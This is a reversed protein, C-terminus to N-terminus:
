NEGRLIISIVMNVDDIDVVGDGNLDASMDQTGSLILNIVLNVDDVDVVGDRSVDGEKFAATDLTVTKRNSWGSINYLNPNVPVAKVAYIYKGGPNLGTVTYNTGTIDDINAVVTGTNTSVSLLYTVNATSGLAWSAKFSSNTINSPDNLVPNPLSVKSSKGTLNITVNNADTSSLTITAEVTETSQPTYSVTVTYGNNTLGGTSAAQEISITTPDVSFVGNEDNLTLTIDEVLNMGTVTFTATATVDGKSTLSLSKNSVRIRPGVTSPQIGIVMQQESSFTYGGYSFANMSYWNNGDGSWGFNVHYKNTTSNYGDVNFAHGGGFYGSNVGMYVVPRGEAMETQLMAAWDTESFNDKYVLQTTEEDYDFLKFMDAVLHGETSYIGSGDTGYMMHEGQGVYRMLTAVANGQATTYSGSYSDLMNDWDFTVGPLAPYTYNVADTGWYSSPISLTSTYAPVADIQYNPWKWYYLVMSASTAPCGTLCQYNSGSYTFNCQNWYPAEQDWLATLLPGYTAGARVKPAKYTTPKQVKVNPNSILWDLQEKYMNMIDKLADPIRNLNLPKDGYALIEEARDDGSVILYTSETNFIYFVPTSKNVEGMETMILTPQVAAPAMAKGAYLTQTLYQQAKAQATAADIPAASLQFAVIAVTLLSLIKKM